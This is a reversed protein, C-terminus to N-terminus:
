LAVFNSKVLIVKSGAFDAAKSGYYVQYTIVPGNKLIEVEPCNLEPLKMALFLYKSPHM